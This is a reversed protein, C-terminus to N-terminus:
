LYTGSVVITIDPISVSFAPVGEKPELTNSEYIIYQGYEKDNIKTNVEWIGHEESIHEAGITLDHCAVIKDYDEFAPPFKFITVEEPIIQWVLILNRDSM